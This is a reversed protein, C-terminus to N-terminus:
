TNKNIQSSQMLTARRYEALANAVAQERNYSSFSNLTSRRLLSSSDQSENSLSQVLKSGSDFMSDTLPSNSGLRVFTDNKGDPTSFTFRDSNEPSSFDVSGHDSKQKKAKGVENITDNNENEFNSRLGSIDRLRSLGLPDTNEDILRDLTSAGFITLENSQSTLDNGSRSSHSNLTQRSSRNRNDSGASSDLAVLTSTPRAAAKSTLRSMRGLTSSRTTMSSPAAVTCRRNADNESMALARQSEFINGLDGRKVFTDRKPIPKFNHRTTNARGVPSRTQSRRGSCSRSAKSSNLTSDSGSTQLVSLRTNPMVSSSISKKLQKPPAKQAVSGSSSASSIVNRNTSSTSRDSSTQKGTIVEPKRKRGNLDFSSNSAVPKNNTKNRSSLSGVAKSAVAASGSIPRKKESDKGAGM